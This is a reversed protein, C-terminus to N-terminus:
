GFLLACSKKFFDCNNSYVFFEGRKVCLSNTPESKNLLDVYVYAYHIILIFAVLMM